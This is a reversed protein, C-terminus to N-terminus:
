CVQQLLELRPQLQEQVDQLLLLPAAVVLDCIRADPLLCVQSLFTHTAQLHHQQLLLVQPARFLVSRNIQQNSLGWHQLTLVVTGAQYPTSHTIVQAAQWMVINCMSQQSVGLHSLFEHWSALPSLLLSPNTHLVKALLPLSSHPVIKALLQLNDHFGKFDHEDDDVAIAGVLQEASHRPLCLQVQLM